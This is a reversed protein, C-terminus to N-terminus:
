NGETAQQLGTPIYMEENYGGSFPKYPQQLENLDVPSKDPRRGVNPEVSDTSGTYGGTVKNVGPELRDSKTSPKSGNNADGSKGKGDDNNIRPTNTRAGQKGTGTNQGSSDSRVNKTEANKTKSIFSFVSKSVFRSL